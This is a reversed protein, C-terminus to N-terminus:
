YSYVGGGVNENNHSSKDLTLIYKVNVGLNKLTEAYVNTKQEDQSLSSIAIPTKSQILSILVKEYTNNLIDEVFKVFKKM